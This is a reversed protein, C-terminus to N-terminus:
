CAQGDRRLDRSLIAGDVEDADVEKVYRVKWGQRGLVDFWYRRGGSPLNERNSFKRENQERTSM